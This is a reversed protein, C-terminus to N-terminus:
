SKEYDSLSKVANEYEQRLPNKKISDGIEKIINETKSGGGIKSDVSNKAEEFKQLDNGLNKSATLTLKIGVSAVAVGEIIIGASAGDIAIGPVAGVGTATAATGIV